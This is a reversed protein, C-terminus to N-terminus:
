RQFQSCPSVPKLCTDSNWLFVKYIEENDIFSIDGSEIESKGPSVTVKKFESIEKLEDDEYVAVFFISEQEKGSLNICEIYFSDDVYYISDDLLECVSVCSAEYQWFGIGSAGSISIVDSDKIVANDPLPVGVRTVVVSNEPFKKSFDSVVTGSHMYIKEHEEIYEGDTIEPKSFDNSAHNDLEFTYYGKLNDLYVTSSGSQPKDVYLRYHCFHNVNDQATKFATSYDTGNIIKEGNVWAYLLGGDGKPANICDMAWVIHYWKGLELQYMDAKDGRSPRLCANRDFRRVAGDSSICVPSLGLAHDYGVATFGGEFKVSFEGWVVKDTPFAQYNDGSSIYAQAYEDCTSDMTLTLSKSVRANDTSIQANAYSIDNEWNVNLDSGDSNIFDDHSTWNDFNIDFFNKGKWKAVFKVSGEPMIFTQVPSSSDAIDIGDVTWGAFVGDPRQGADVTVTAGKPYEGAGNTSSYSGIVSVASGKLTWDSMSTFSETLVKDGDFYPVFEVAMNVKTVSDSHVTLKRTGVRSAQIEPNPSTPLPDPSMVTFVLSEDDTILSAKIKDSGLTLIASKGDDTIEIGAKTHMFWYFPHSENLTLEDQITIKNMARDLKMGRVWSKAGYDDLQDTFDYVAFGMRDNSMSNILTACADSDHGTDETESIIITNHGEPRCIYYDTYKYGTSHYTQGETGYDLAWRKGNMDFVFTGDFDQMARVAKKRYGGYMAMWTDSDDSGTKLVSINTAGKSHYDLPLEFKEYDEGDYWLIDKFTPIASHKEIQHNIRHNILEKKGTLEGFLLFEPSDVYIPSSSDINFLGKPGEIQSLWEFTVNFGPSNSLGYDTGLATLMSGLGYGMYDMAYDWYNPGDLFGGDPLYSDALDKFRKMGETVVKGADTFDGLDEDGIALVAMNTGGTCISIWNNPYAGTSKSSWRYTRVRSPVENYDDMVPRLAYNILVNKVTERQNETFSDYCWDYGLAVAASMEGVDLFHRSNWDPFACVTMVAEVVKQAYKADGTMLYAFGINEVDQLVRRSVNLLRVGDPIEYVIPKTTMQTINEEAKAIIGDAWSKYPEYKIKRRLERIGDDGSVLLRPHANKPNMIKIQEIVQEPTPETEYIVDRLYRSISLFEEKDNWDIDAYEGAFFIGNKEEDCKIGFIECTLSAPIYLHDNSLYTGDSEDLTHTKGDYSLDIEFGNIKYDIGLADLFFESPVMIVGNKFKPTVKPNSEDMLCVTGGIRARPSGEYMIVERESVCYAEIEYIEYQSYKEDRGGKGGKFTIRITDGKVSSDFVFYTAVTGSTQTLSGSAALKMEEQTGVEITVLDTCVSGYAVREFIRIEALNQLSSLSLTVVLDNTRDKVNDTKFYDDGTISGDIMAKAPHVSTNRSPISTTISSVMGSQILINEELYLDEALSIVPFVTCLVTTLITVILILSEIRRQM